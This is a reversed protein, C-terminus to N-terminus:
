VQPTPCAIAAAAPVAGAHQGSRRWRVCVCARACVSHWRVWKAQARVDGGRGRRAAREGHPCSCCTAAPSSRTAWPCASAWTAARL